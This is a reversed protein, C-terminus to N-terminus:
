RHDGDTLGPRQARRLLTRAWWWGGATLLVGATALLRGPASAYLRDPGVGALAGAVPAALPLASLLWMSARPGAAVVATRERAVQRERVSRAAAATVSSATAGVEEALRWAAALTRLDAADAPDAPLQEMVGAVGRGEALSATTLEVLM